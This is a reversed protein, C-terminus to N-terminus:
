TCAHTNYVHTYRYAAGRCRITRTYMHMQCTVLLCLCKPILPISICATFTLITTITLTYLINYIYHLYLSKNLTYHPIYPPYLLSVTSSHCKYVLKVIGKQTMGCFIYMVNCHYIARRHQGMRTYYLRCMYSSTNWHCYM